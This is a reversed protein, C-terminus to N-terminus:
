RWITTVLSYSYSQGHWNYHISITTNCFGSKNCINYSLEYTVNRGPLTVYCVKSGNETRPNDCCEDEGIRLSTACIKVESMALNRLENEARAVFVNQMYLALGLLVLLMVVLGVLVEVLSFGGDANKLRIGALLLKKILFM